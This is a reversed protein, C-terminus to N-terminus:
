EMPVSVKSLAQALFAEPEVFIDEKFDPYPIKYKMAGNFCDLVCRLKQEGQKVEFTVCLSNTRCTYNKEQKIVTEALAQVFALDFKEAELEFLPGLGAPTAKDMFYMNVFINLKNLFSLLIPLRLIKFKFSNMESKGDVFVLKKTCKEKYEKTLDVKTLEM